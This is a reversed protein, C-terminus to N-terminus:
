KRQALYAARIREACSRYCHKPGALSPSFWECFEQFVLDHMADDSLSRDMRLLISAAEPEYEDKPVHSRVLDMPDEEYLLTAVADFLPGFKAKAVDIESINRNNM